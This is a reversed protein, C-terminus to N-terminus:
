GTGAPERWMAWVVPWTATPRYEARVEFGFRGYWGTNAPTATFLFCGVSEADARALMPALLASGCGTGQQGPDVGLAALFYHRPFGAHHLRNERRGRLAERLAGM